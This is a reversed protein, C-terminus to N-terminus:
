NFNNINSFRLFGDPLIERLFTDQHKKPEDMANILSTRNREFHPLLNVHYHHLFRNFCVHLYATKPHNM